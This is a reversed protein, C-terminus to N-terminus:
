PHRILRLLKRILNVFQARSVFVRIEANKIILRCDGALDTATTIKSAVFKQLTIEDAAQCGAMAAQPKM